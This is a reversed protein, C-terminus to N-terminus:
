NLSSVFVAFIIYFVAWLRDVTTYASARFRCFNFQKYIILTFYIHALKLCKFSATSLNLHALAYM